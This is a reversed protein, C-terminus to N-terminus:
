KIGYHRDLYEDWQTDRAFDLAKYFARFQRYDSPIPLAVSIGTRTEVARCAAVASRAEEATKELIAANKVGALGDIRSLSAEIDWYYDKGGYSESPTFRYGDASANMLELVFANFAFALEAARSMNWYGMDRMGAAGAMSAAFGAADSPLKAQLSSLIRGYPYGNIGTTDAAGVMIECSNRFQYVAEISGPLCADFALVSLPRNGNLQTRFSDLVAVIEFVTLCDNDAHDYGVFRDNPNFVVEGPRSSGTGGTGRWSFIGSGHSNIILAYRQAPHRAVAHKLFGWLVKPSGMNVEGPESEVTIDGKQISYISAEGGKNSNFISGRATRDEMVVVECGAPPGVRKMAEVNRGNADQMVTDKDDNVMYILITWDNLAWGTVPAMLIALLVLIRRIAQM